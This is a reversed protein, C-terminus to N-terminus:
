CCFRQIRCGDMPCTTADCRGWKMVNGKWTQTACWSVTFQPQHNTSAGFIACGTYTVGKYNFPFICHDGATTKCDTSRSYYCTLFAPYTISIGLALDQAVTTQATDGLVLSWSATQTLRPPVGRSLTETLPPATPSPTAGSSSPSSVLLARTMAVSPSVAGM